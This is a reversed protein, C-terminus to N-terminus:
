YWGRAEIGIYQSESGYYFYVTTSIPAVENFTIIVANYSYGIAKITGGADIGNYKLGCSTTIGNIVARSTGAMNNIIWPDHIYISGGSDSGCVYQSYPLKYYYRQCLRLEEDYRRPINGTFKTGRELKIFDINYSYTMLLSFQDYAEIPGGTYRTYSLTLSPTLPFTSSESGNIICSKIKGNFSITLTYQTNDDITYELNQKLEVSKVTGINISIGSNNNLKSITPMTDSPNNVTVNQYWMDATYVNGGNNFSTGRQWVQFNGNILINPNVINVM